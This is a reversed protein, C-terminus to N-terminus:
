KQNPNDTVLNLNEIIVPGVCDVGGPTNDPILPELGDIIIPHDDGNGGIDPDTYGETNEPTGDSYGFDLDVALGSDNNAGGYPANTQSSMSPDAPINVSSTSHNVTASTDAIEHYRSEIPIAFEEADRRYQNLVNLSSAESAFVDKTMAILLIGLIILLIKKKM